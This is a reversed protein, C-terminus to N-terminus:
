QLATPGDPPPTRAAQIEANNLATGIRTDDRALRAAFRLYRLAEHPDERALLTEGLALATKPNEPERAFADALREHRSALERVRGYEKRLRGAETRNGRAEEIRALLYIARAYQKKRATAKTVYPLASEPQGREMYLRGLEFNAEPYEPELEVARTLMEEALRDREPTRPTARACAFGLWRFPEARATEKEVVPRLAAIAKEYHATLALVRGYALQVNMRNPYAAAAKSLHQAAKRGSSLREYLLGAALHARPCDPDLTLEREAHLRASKLLRLRIETEALRCWGHEPKKGHDVYEKWYGLAAPLDRESEALEALAKYAPTFAPDKELAEHFADQALAAQRGSALRQGRAYAVASPAAFPLTGTFTRYLLAAAGAAVGCAAIAAFVFRKGRVRQIQM